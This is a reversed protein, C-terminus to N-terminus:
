VQFGFRLLGLGWVRIESLRLDQFPAWEFLFIM